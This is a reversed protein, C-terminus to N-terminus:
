GCMMTGSLLSCMTFFRSILRRSVKGTQGHASTYPAPVEHKLHYLVDVLRSKDVWLTPFPDATTQQLLTDTGFTEQLYAVIDQELAVTSM